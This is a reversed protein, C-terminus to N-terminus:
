QLVLYGLTTHKRAAQFKAYKGCVIVRWGTRVYARLIYVFKKVLGALLLPMIIIGVHISRCCCCAVLM